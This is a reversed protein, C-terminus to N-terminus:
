DWMVTGATSDIQMKCGCKPCPKRKIDWVTINESNCNNCKYFDRQEETLEDKPIDHGMQGIIVDTIENCDNCTYPKVVYMMGWDRKGSSEISYDCKVCRFTFSQGM